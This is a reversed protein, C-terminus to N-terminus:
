RTPMIDGFDVEHGRDGAGKPPRSRRKSSEPVGSGGTQSIRIAKM